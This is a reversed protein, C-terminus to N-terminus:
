PCALMDSRISRSRNSSEVVLILGERVPLTLSMATERLQVSSAERRVPVM